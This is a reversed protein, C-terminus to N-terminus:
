TYFVQSGLAMYEGMQQWLVHYLRVISCKWSVAIILAALDCDYANADAFFSGYGQMSNCKLARRPTPLLSPLQLYSIAKSAIPFFSSVFSLLRPRSICM